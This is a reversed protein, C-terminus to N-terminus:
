HSHSGMIMNSVRDQKSGTLFNRTQCKDREGFFHFFFDKFCTLFSYKGSDKSM